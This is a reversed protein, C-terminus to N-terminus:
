IDATSHEQNPEPPEDQLETSSLTDKQPSSLAKPVPLVSPIQSFNENIVNKLETDNDTTDISQEFRRTPINSKEGEFLEVYKFDSRDRHKKNREENELPYDSNEDETLGEDLDDEREILEAYPTSSSLQELIISHLPESTQQATYDEDSRTDNSDDFITTTTMPITTTTPVLTPQITTKENAIPGHPPISNAPVIIQVISPTQIMPMQNPALPHLQNPQMISALLEMSPQQLLNNSMSEVPIPLSQPVICHAIGTLRAHYMEFMGVLQPLHEDCLVPNETLSLFTYTVNIERFIVILCIVKSYFRWNLWLAM